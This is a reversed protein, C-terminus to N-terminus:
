EYLYHQEMKFPLVHSLVIESVVLGFDELIANFCLSFFYFCAEWFIYTLM